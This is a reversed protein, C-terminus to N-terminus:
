WGVDEVLEPDDIIIQASKEPHDELWDRLEKQNCFFLDASHDDLVVYNNEDKIPGECKECYM